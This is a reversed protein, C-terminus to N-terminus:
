RRRIGPMLGILAFLLLVISSPEPVLAGAALSQVESAALARNWIGVEDILGIVNRGTFVTSGGITVDGMPITDITPTNTNDAYAALAVGDIYMTVDELTGGAALPDAAGAYVHAIHHWQGDNIVPTGTASTRYDSQIETRIAGLSSGGGQTASNEMRFTWRNGPTNTGWEAFHQNMTNESKVWMSISRPGSGAQGTFGDSSVLDAGTLELSSGGGFVAPVDSSFSVDLTGSGDHDFPSGNHGAGSIDAIGGVAITDNDFSYYLDLGNAIQAQLAASYV